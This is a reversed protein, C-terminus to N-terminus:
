SAETDEHGGNITYYDSFFVPSCNNTCLNSKFINNVNVFMVRVNVFNFILLQM